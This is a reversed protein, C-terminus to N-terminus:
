AVKWDVNDIKMIERILREEKADQDGMLALRLIM